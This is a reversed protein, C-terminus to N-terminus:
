CTFHGSTKLLHITRDHKFSRAAGSRLAYGTASPPGAPNRWPAARPDYRGLVRKGWRVEFTRGSPAPGPGEPRAPPRGPQKGIQLRVSAMVVTNDKGVKRTEEICLAEDLDHESVPVFASQPNAPPRAFERNFDPLFKERM